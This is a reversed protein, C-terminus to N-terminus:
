KKVRKLVLFILAIAILGFAIKFFEFYDLKQELVKIKHKLIANEDQLKKIEDSALEQEKTTESSSVEDASSIEQTAMHFSGADVTVKFYKEDSKYNYEGDNDLNGEFIVGDKTEITFKCNKCPKGNGFYSNIFLNNDELDLFLNVKHAFLLVPILLVFFYRM